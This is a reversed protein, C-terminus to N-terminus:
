TRPYRDKDGNVWQKLREIASNAAILNNLELATSNADFMRIGVLLM